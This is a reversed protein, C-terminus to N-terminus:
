SFQMSGLEAGAITREIMLAAGCQWQALECCGISVFDDIIKNLDFNV